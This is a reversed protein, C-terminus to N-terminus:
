RGACQGEDIAMSALYLRKENSIEGMILIQSPIKLRGEVLFRTETWFHESIYMARDPAREIKEIVCPITKVYRRIGLLVTVVLVVNLYSAQPINKLGVAVKRIFM